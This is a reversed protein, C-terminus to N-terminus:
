SWCRALQSLANSGRNAMLKLELQTWWRSWGAAKTLAHCCIGWGQTCERGIMKKSGLFLINRITELWSSPFRRTRRGARVFEIRFPHWLPAELERNRDIPDLDVFQPLRTWSTLNKLWCLRWKRSQTSSSSRKELAAWAIHNRPSAMGFRLFIRGMEPHRTCRGPINITIGGDSKLNWNHIIQQAMSYTCTVWDDHM